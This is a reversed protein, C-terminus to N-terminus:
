SPRLLFPHLTLEYSRTQDCSGGPYGVVAQALGRREVARVCVSGRLNEDQTTPESPEGRRPLQPVCEAPPLIHALPSTPASIQFPPSITSRTSLKPPLAKETCASTELGSSTLFKIWFATSSNPRSSTITLLAPVSSFIGKRSVGSSTHFLIMEIFRVPAHSPQWSAALCITLWPPDPRMM